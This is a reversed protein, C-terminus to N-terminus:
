NPTNFKSIRGIFQTLLPTDFILQHFFLISLKDLLPVNIRAVLDELYESSGGFNPETLSPLLARTPPPPRRSRQDPRCRPSEFRITLTELRTLGSLCAVMAEPSIYGSYPIRRLDLDVLNTASLLLKPLGPFPVCDLRLTQLHPASGGSFSGPNLPATEKHLQPQLLELHTLAPFPKQTAALIEELDESLIESITLQCIRDNHRLAEVVNDLCWTHTSWSEFVDVIIVIPLPPWVDIESM